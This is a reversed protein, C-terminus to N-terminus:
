ESKKTLYPVLREVQAKYREEGRVGNFWEWGSPETLIRYAERRITRGHMGYEIDRLKNVTLLDLVSCNYSLNTDDPLEAFEVYLGVAKELAAYGEEKWGAGFCGAALRMGFFARMGLWADIDTSTDRMTDIMDLVMRYGKAGAEPNKYRKEDRRGICNYFLYELISCFNQQRQFNCKEVEDRYDYREELLVERCSKWTPVMDLWHEVKDDDEARVIMWFAEIRCDEEPCTEIIKRCIKRVEDMHEELPRVKHDVYCRCLAIALWFEDPFEEYAARCAKYLAEPDDSVANIKEYHSMRKEERTAQDMGFLVDTSIGFYNAIKPIMEMDPYAQGNEWRSVSQYTVGLVAALEEQTVCRERRLRRIVNAIPLNM